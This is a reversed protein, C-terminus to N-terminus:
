PTPNLASCGPSNPPGDVLAQLGLARSNDIAHYRGVFHGVDRMELEFRNRIAPSIKRVANPVSANENQGSM